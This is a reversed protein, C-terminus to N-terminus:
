GIICLKLVVKYYICLCLLIPVFQILSIYEIEESRLSSNPNTLYINLENAIQVIVKRKRSSVGHAIEAAFSRNSM